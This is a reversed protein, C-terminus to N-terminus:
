SPGTPAVVELPPPRPTPLASRMRWRYPENGLGYTLLTKGFADSGVMNEGILGRVLPVVVCYPFPTWAAGEVMEGM